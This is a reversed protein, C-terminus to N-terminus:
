ILKLFFQYRRVFKILVVNLSIQHSFLNFFKLFTLDFKFFLTITQIKIKRKDFHNLKTEFAFTKKLM